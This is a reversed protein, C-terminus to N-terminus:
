SKGFYQQVLIPQQAPRQQHHHISVVLECETTPARASLFRELGEQSCQTNTLNLRELQTCPAIIEFIANSVHRCLALDLTVLDLCNGLLSLSIDSVSTGCLYVHRLRTLRGLVTVDRVATSTMSIYVLRLCCEIGCLSYLRTDDLKLCRLKCASRLPTIDTVNTGSIDLKRLQHFHQLAAIDFLYAFNVDLECLSGAFPLVTNLNCLNSTPLELVVLSNDTCAALTGLFDTLMACEDDIDFDFCRIRYAHCMLEPRKMFWTVVKIDMSFARVAPLWGKSDVDPISDFHFCQDLPLPCSLVTNRMERNVASLSIRDHFDLAGVISEMIDPWFLVHSGNYMEMEKKVPTKLDCTM